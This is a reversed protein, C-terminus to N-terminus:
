RRSALLWLWRVEGEPERMAEVRHDVIELGAEDALRLTTDADWGSFFMDVGLWDGQWAPSTPPPSRRSSCGARGSGATSADSSPASNTARSITSRTSRSSPMSRAM